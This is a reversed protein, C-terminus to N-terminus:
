LVESTPVPPGPSYIATGGVAIRERVYRRFVLALTATYCGGSVLMGYVAGRLGFYKVLPVGFVFTAIASSVYAYFVLRPEEAARIADGMTGGIGMLLPVLALLFLMPALEDFKGAYLLHIARSGVARVALAFTLTIALMLAAYRKWFALFANMNQAVYKAALAPLFLFSLSIMVQDVPAILVYMAKLEGVERVSLFGAVLWYYGQHMIQFVFATALVWRAYRWHELLYHPESVIFERQPRGLPLKRMFSLAAVVWGLAVILFVSFGNLARATAALWLLVAVALFFVFSTGAALAPRRMIYFSRRVFSGSLIFLITLALGLLSRSSLTPALKSFLLCTLFLGASLTVGTLLNGNLMLRWYAALRDRYRGSAYVTFPELVASNHLGALFIFISYSLAFMGYEEKTQTRALVVNVLFMGGASFGQDGLGFALQKLRQATFSLTLSDSWRSFRNM